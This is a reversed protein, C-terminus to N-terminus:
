VGFIELNFEDVTDFNETYAGFNTELAIVDEISHSPVDIHVQPFNLHIRPEGAVVGGVKFTVNFDNVVKTLGKTPSVLDSFFDSSAGTNGADSDFVLYCTFNGGIARAGTVGEIPKNITGLEEPVLYTVNNSITVNGGTLTFSYIGTDVTATQVADLTPSDAAPSAADNSLSFTTTSGVAFVTRIKDNVQTANTGSVSKIVVKDGVKLGHASSTTFNPASYASIDIRKGEMVDPNQGRVELQTLRNRIFNTTSTVGTNYATRWNAAADITGGSDYADNASTDAAVEFVTASTVDTVTHSANITGELADDGTGDGVVGAIVVTDGVSLGHPTATTISADADNSVDTINISGANVDLNMVFDNGSDLWVDYTALSPATAGANVKGESQLDNVEKAFGSWNATAIGDIDFDISCENVIANSLKYVMPNTTDTEFVFYLTLTPLTSRNSEDFSLLAGTGGSPLTAGTVDLVTGNTTAKDTSNRSFDGFESGGTGAHIDAGAMAAWLVEDVLHHESTNKKTPRVYTSFSWEAPALSDTFLRRGRRSIGATSEMETLGIETQNTSQSFSFGDLVPVEWLGQFEGANSTLEVYLKADRSFYLKDAM